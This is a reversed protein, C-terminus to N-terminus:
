TDVAFSCRWFGVQVPTPAGIGLEELAGTLGFRDSIGLAAWESSISQTTSLWRRHVGMSVAGLSRKFYGQLLLHYM